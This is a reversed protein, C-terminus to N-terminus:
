KKKSFNLKMTVIKDTSFIKAAILVFIIFFVAQYIIGYIVSTYNGLFLNPAALFPHSFPIAYIIYRLVPSVTNIDLFMTVFYPIAVLVMLPSTLGAVSKVDEAFAGLILSIALAGLICFFLSIGLYIYSEPSFVLGLEKVAESIGVGAQSMAGGSVDNLYNKMGFMYIISSALAIIGAGAMKSIVIYKRNVPTTLLTELTKNEKEQAITTAIMQSAFVIVIFLIIPIFATQSQIFGMVQEPSTNAKKDGVVVYNNAQVPMKLITPDGVNGAAILQNSVANNVAGIGAAISAFDKIGMLSFNHVLNYVEIQKPSLSLVSQEFGSPIIVVATDERVQANSIIKDLETKETNSEVKLNNKSFVDILTDSLPTQDYDVVTITKPQDAKKQERGVVNGLIGFLAVTILLPAIVQPTLLEMIEKKLLVLFKKM